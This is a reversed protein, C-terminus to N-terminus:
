EEARQGGGVLSWQAISWDGWVVAAEGVSLGETSVAPGQQWDDGWAGKAASEEFDWVGGRGCSVEHSVFSEVADAQPEVPVFQAGVDFAPESGAWVADKGVGAHAAVALEDM